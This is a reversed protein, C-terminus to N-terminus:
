VSRTADIQEELYELTDLYDKVSSCKSFRARAASAGPLGKVYWMSHKRMSPLQSHKSENVLKVHHRLLEIREFPTPEFYEENNLASIIEKFIWPNGQAGRAVMVADCNTEEFLSLADQANFTDGNGVVPISVADKAEKICQRDSRGRYMQSSYRGHITIADAGANEMLVSFEKASLYNGSDDWSKRIKCTVPVNVKKKLSSIIESALEPTKMLASGDGKSVIKRVPCGMNIDILVLQKGLEQEILYAQQAIANPEHGFLQVAVQTEGAGLNILNKTKENNYSLGKASVMETFTLQAGMELCLTRFVPDTVGAMPALIVQRGDLVNSSTHINTM